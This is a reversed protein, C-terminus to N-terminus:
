LQTKQCNLICSGNTIVGAKVALILSGNQTDPGTGAPGDFEDRWVLKWGPLDAGPTATEPSTIEPTTVTTPNGCASLLLLCLIASLVLKKM